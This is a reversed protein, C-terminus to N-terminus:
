VLNQAIFSRTDMRQRGIKRGLQLALGLAQFARDREDGTLRDLGARRSACVAAAVGQRSDCFAGAALEPASSRREQIGTALVRDVPVV